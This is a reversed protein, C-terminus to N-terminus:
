LSSKRNSARVTIPKSTTNRVMKERHNHLYQISTFLSSVRSYQSLTLLQIVAAGVHLHGTCTFARMIDKDTCFHGGYRTVGYVSSHPM